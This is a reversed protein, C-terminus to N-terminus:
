LQADNGRQGLGRSKGLLMNSMERDKSEDEPAMDKQRKRSDM